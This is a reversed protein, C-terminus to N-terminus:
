ERLMATPEEQIRPIDEEPRYAMAPLRPLQDIDTM